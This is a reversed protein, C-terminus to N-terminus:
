LVAKSVESLNGFFCPSVSLTHQSNQFNWLALVECCSSAVKMVKLSSLWIDHFKFVFYILLNAVLKNYVLKGSFM